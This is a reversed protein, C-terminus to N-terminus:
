GIALGIRAIPTTGWATVARSTTADIDDDIEATTV